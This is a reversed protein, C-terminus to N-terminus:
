YIDVTVIIVIINTVIIIVNVSGARCEAQSGALRSHRWYFRESFMTYFIESQKLPSYRSIVLRNIIGTRSRRQPM